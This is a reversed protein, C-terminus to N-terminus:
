PLPELQRPVQEGLHTTVAVTPRTLVNGGKCRGADASFPHQSPQRRAGDLRCSRLSRVGSASSRMFSDSKIVTRAPRQRQIRPLRWGAGHNHPTYPSRRGEVGQRDAKTAATARCVKDAAIAGCSARCSSACSSGFRAAGSIWSRSRYRVCVSRVHQLTSHRCWVAPPHISPHASLRAGFLAHPGNMVITCGLPGWGQRSCPSRM